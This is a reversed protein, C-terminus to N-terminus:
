YNRWKEKYIEFLDNEKLWRIFSKIVPEMDIIESREYVEEFTEYGNDILYIFKIAEPVITLYVHHQFSDFYKPTKYKQVRKIDYIIGAKLVDLKGKLNINLGYINNYMLEAKFQFCGGEIIPSIREHDGNLCEDEFENGRKMFFNVEIPERMLYSLFDDKENGYDYLFM